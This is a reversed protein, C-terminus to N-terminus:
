IKWFFIFAARPHTYVSLRALPKKNKMCANTPLAAHPTIFLVFFAHPTM